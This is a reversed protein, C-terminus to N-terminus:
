KSEMSDQYRLTSVAVGFDDPLLIDQRMQKVGIKILAMHHVAHEINYILERYLNTDVQVLVDKDRDYNVELTLNHNSGTSTLFDQIANIADMALGRNTELTTDHDRNDYNVSGSNAGSQLCIYFELTHRIHQGLTAGNLVSIPQVFEQDSLREILSKLQDLISHNAVIVEM